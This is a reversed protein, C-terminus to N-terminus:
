EVEDSSEDSIRASPATGPAKSGVAEQFASLWMGPQVVAEAAAV